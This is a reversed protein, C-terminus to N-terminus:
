LPLSERKSVNVHTFIHTSTLKVLYQVFFINPTKEQFKSKFVILIQDHGRDLLEQCNAELNSLTIGDTSSKGPYFSWTGDQNQQLTGHRPKPMTHLFLTANAGGKVWPPLLTSTKIPCHEPVLGLLDQNYESISGDKFSVTYVNPHDYLPIGVISGVSPPLHTHVFVSSELPFKPAFISTSEDLRYIFTGPQYKFGFHAGSTVNYQFKNDISSV